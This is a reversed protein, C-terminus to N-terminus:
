IGGGESVLQIHNQFDQSGAHNHNACVSFQKHLLQTVQM